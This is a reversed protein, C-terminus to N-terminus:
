YNTFVHSPHWNTDVYCCKYFYTMKEIRRLLEYELDFCCESRSDEVTRWLFNHYDDSWELEDGELSCLLHSVEHSGGHKNTSKYGLSIGYKSLSCYTTKSVESLM